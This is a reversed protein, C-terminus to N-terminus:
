PQRVRQLCWSFVCSSPPIDGSATYLVPSGILSALMSNIGPESGCIASHIIRSMLFDM